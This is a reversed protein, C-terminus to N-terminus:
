VYVTNRLSAHFVDRESDVVLHEVPDTDYRGLLFRGNVGEDTFKQSVESAAIFPKRLSSPLKQPQHIGGLAAHRGIPLEGAPSGMLPLTKRSVFTRM